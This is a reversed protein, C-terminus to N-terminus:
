PRNMFLVPVSICLAIYFDLCLAYRGLKPKPFLSLIQGGSALGGACGDWPQRSIGKGGM